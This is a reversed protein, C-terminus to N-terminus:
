TLTTALRQHDHEFLSVGVLLAADKACKSYTRLKAM